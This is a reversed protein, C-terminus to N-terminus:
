RRSLMRGLFDVLAAQGAVGAARLVHVGDVGLMRLIVDTANGAMRRVVRFFPNKAPLLVARVKSRTGDAAFLRLEVHGEMMPHIFPQDLAAIAVVHVARDFGLLHPSGGRLIRDAELAVRVLLSRKNVFMRGYLDISALRAMQRVASWIGVHQLEAVDVQEAQLAM